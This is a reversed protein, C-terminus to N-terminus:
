VNDMNLKQFINKNNGINYNIKNGRKKKTKITMDATSQYLSNLINKKAGHLNQPSKLNEETKKKRGKRGTKIGRIRRAIKLKKPKKNNKIISQNLCEVCKCKSNCTKGNNFCDCYNKICNSNKCNCTWNKKTSNIRNIFDPNTSIKENYKEIRLNEFEKTNKCDCCLCDECYKGNSFCECYFKLCSTNKCNCKKKIKEDIKNSKNIIGNNKNYNENNENLQNNNLNINNNQYTFIGMKKNINPKFNINISANITNCVFKKMKSMKYMRKLKNCINYCKKKKNNKQISSDSSSSDSSINEKSNEKENKINSTNINKYVNIDENFAPFRRFIGEEEKKTVDNFKEYM